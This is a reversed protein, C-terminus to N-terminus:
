ELIHIKEPYGPVDMPQFNFRKILKGYYTTWKRPSPTMHHIRGASDWTHFGLRFGMERAWQLCTAVGHRAWPEAATAAEMAVRWHDSHRGDRQFPRMEELFDSQVEDIFIIQNTQDFHIRLWGITDLETPHHAAVGQLLLTTNHPLKELTSRVIEPSQVNIVLQPADFIRSPGEWRRYALGFRQSSDCYELLSQTTIRNGEALSLLVQPFRTTTTQDFKKLEAWSIRERDDQQLKKALDRLAVTAESVFKPRTFGLLIEMSTVSRPLLSLIRRQRIEDMQGETLQTWFTDIVENCWRTPTDSVHRLPPRTAQGPPASLRSIFVGVLDETIRIAQFVTSSLDYLYKKPCTVVGLTVLEEDGSEVQKLAQKVAQESLRNIRTRIQATALAKKVQPWSPNILIQDRGLIEKMESSSLKSVVANAAM